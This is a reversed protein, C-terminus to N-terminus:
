RHTESMDLDYAHIRIVDSAAADSRDNPGKYRLGIAAEMTSRGGKVIVLVSSRLFFSDQAPDYDCHLVRRGHSRGSSTFLEIMGGQSNAPDPVSAMPKVLFSDHGLWQVDVIRPLESLPRGVVKALRELNQRDTDAEPLPIRRSDGDAPHGVIVSYQGAPDAYIVRGAANVDWCRMTFFGIHESVKVTLEGCLENRNSFLITPTDDKSGLRFVSWATTLPTAASAPDPLADTTMAAMYLRGDGDSRATGLFQTM